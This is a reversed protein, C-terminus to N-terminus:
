LPWLLSVSTSQSGARIASRQGPRTEEFLPQAACCGSQVADTQPLLQTLGSRRQGNGNRWDGVEVGHRGGATRGPEIWRWVANLAKVV